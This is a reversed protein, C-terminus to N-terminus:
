AIASRMATRTTITTVTITTARLTISTMTTVMGRRGAPPMALTFRLVVTSDTTRTVTINESGGALTGTITAVAVGVGAIEIATMVFVAGGIAAAIGPGTGDVTATTM